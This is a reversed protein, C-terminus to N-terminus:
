QGRVVIPLYIEWVPNAPSSVPYITDSFSESVNSFEDRFRAYVHDSVPLWVLSTFPQWATNSVTDTWILMETVNGASSEAIMQVTMTVETMSYILATGTVVSSSVLPAPRPVVVGPHLIASSVTLCPPQGSYVALRDLDYDRTRSNLKMDAGGLFLPDHISYNAPETGQGSVVVVWHTKKPDGKRHMGLIVPHHNENLEQDLRSWSFVYEDIWSAKGNTCSAGNEWSFPCASTGMCDSLASPDLDTGYYSFVM